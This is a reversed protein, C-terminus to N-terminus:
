EFFRWFHDIPGHGKGIEYKAGSSIAEHIYDEALGVAEHLPHGLALFAAVASSLSCGTGHTNPTDIRRFSYRHTDSPEFLVDTLEAGNLHGSKLLVAKAGMEMIRAAAQGFDSESAIEAGSIFTAEPINPTVLTSLPLLEECIASVAEPAILRDGSTAIMVPDLVVNAVKYKRLMRAVAKVVGVTPLMGLKVADAGIDGLVADIQGEVVDDPVVHVGGVGVTNQVTIATIATAAYCGNASIAKIDAQIGAGGGSDSGAISLVTRYRKSM